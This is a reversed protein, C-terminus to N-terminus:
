GEKPLRGRRGRLRALRSAQREHEKAKRKPAQREQEELIQKLPGVAEFGRPVQRWPAKM